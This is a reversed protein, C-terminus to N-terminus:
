GRTRGEEPVFPGSRHARACTAFPHYANTQFFSEAAAILNKNRWPGTSLIFSPQQLQPGGQFSTAWDLLGAMHTLTETSVAIGESDIELTYKEGTKRMQEQLSPLVDQSKRDAPPTGESWAWKFGFPCEWYVANMATAKSHKNLVRRVGKIGFEFIFQQASAKKRSSNKHQKDELKTLLDRHKKIESRLAEAWRPM